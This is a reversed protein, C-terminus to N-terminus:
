GEEISLAYDGIARVGLRDDAGIREADLWFRWM